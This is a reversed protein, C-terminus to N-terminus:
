CSRNELEHDELRSSTIRAVPVTVETIVEKEQMIDNEGYIDIPIERKSQSGLGHSPLTSLSIDM